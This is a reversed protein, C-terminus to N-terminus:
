KDLKDINNTKVKLFIDILDRIRIDRMENRRLRLRPNIYYRNYWGKRKKSIYGEAELDSIIRRVSRENVGVEAAIDAAKVQRYKAIIAFVVGHNTIFTWDSM